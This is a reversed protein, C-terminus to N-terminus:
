VFRAALHGERVAVQLDRPAKADGVISVNQVAGRLEEYM